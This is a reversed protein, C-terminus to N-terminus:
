LLLGANRAVYVANAKNKAGLKGYINQLHWKITSLSLDLYEALSQNRMGSQLLQLIQLERTTLALTSRAQSGQSQANTLGPGSWTVPKASRRKPTM